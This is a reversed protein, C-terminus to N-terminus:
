MQGQHIRGHHDATAGARPHQQRVPSDRLGASVHVARDAGDSVLAGLRMISIVACTLRRHALFAADPILLVRAEISVYTVLPHFTESGADGKSVAKIISSWVLTYFCVCM